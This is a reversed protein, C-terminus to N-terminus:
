ESASGTLRSVSRIRPMAMMGVLHNCRFIVALGNHYQTKRRVVTPSVRAALLCRESTDDRFGRSRGTSVATTEVSLAAM